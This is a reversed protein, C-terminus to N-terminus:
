GRGADDWEEALIKDVNVSTDRVGSGGLGIFALKKRAEGHILYAELADRVVSGTSVDRRRRENDLLAVLEDPVVITIRKM